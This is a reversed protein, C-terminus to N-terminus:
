RSSQLFFFFLDLIYFFFLGDVTDHIARHYLILTETCTGTGSMPSFPHTCLTSDRDETVSAPLPLSYPSGLYGKYCWLPGIGLTILPWRSPPAPILIYVSVPRCKFLRM